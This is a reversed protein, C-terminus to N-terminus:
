KQDFEAKKLIEDLTLGFEQKGDRHRLTITKNELEKAGIVLMWPIQQLQATKIKGSIPDSSEDMAVRYGREKLTALLEHGYEKQEDTITLIKMQVPAIFFPLRGKFHEVLIGFFREISGYIARHVMVPRARTGEPSVYTLDFNQPQFFDVQITGCQWERGMSDQIRFEIKPGYFAGEGEYIEYSVGASELAHKLADTAKKWLVDDGMANEPKTSIGVTITDFGFKKLVTYTIDVMQKIQEELQHPTCFVHADDITFARARFLGHLVGSLEYRHALGFEALKLPLERYSRPREKYILIAGPCNMPKIAFSREDIESFYMNNKYHDYHGSRKWLEDSLMMPTAIEQYDAAKLLKKLYGVLQDYVIKGQPHFFPFGPGEDHFSFLDLEKGLKRHDYKLAEERQKEYMRLEKPTFFATGSIRQLAKGERNGRWYSGSVTLLKFNKLLSTNAVHGGRCLDYFDGQRAIGVTDGEIQDILELKFPNNKYLERAVKKSVQEHTLPLKRDAIEEMRQAIAPLDSEKFNSTPLFDYFFGEPTAPGITLQTDPYLETVAHALLHAASHRLVNIDQEPKM